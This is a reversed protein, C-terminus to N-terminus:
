NAFHEQIRQAKKRNIGPVKMLEETGANRIADVSGFHKLLASKLVPGVGPIDDLVSRTTVKSRLSRHYSLAFRHAEDRVRQLLQLARSNEPLKISETKNWAHIEEEREALAIVPIFNLDLEDLVELAANLQGRGGDILILDPVHGDELARSYRRHLVEQMMAYDNPGSVTKIRFRRYDDKLSVGHEFVVMAGVAQSGQINSIDFGEIRYPISDLGLVEALELLAGGTRERELAQVTIEQELAISANEEVMSIIQKKEGRQPVHLSVKSGKVGSLWEELLEKEEVEGTLLIERPIFYVDAYYHKIFESLVESGALEEAEELFYHERGILKGERIFFVQVCTIGDKTAYGIADIDELRDSVIRQKEIVSNIAAIQDRIAAAKEFQLDKAAENMKEKLSSVLRLGRGELFLCIENVMNLYTERDVYGACPALCREIHYNLCPRDSTGERISKKCARVPFIRKLLSLVERASKVDTYPGFYRSGDRKVNRTLFIRPFEENITVKIYPYSKDDKLRINYRPREKKILNCELILAELESNTVIYEFDAIDRVLLRVKPSQNGSSQFYSRVRKRLSKAKGVYIVRGSGDKMIYVGPNDPVLGLKDELSM